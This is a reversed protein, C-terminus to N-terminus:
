CGGRMDAGCNPCFHLIEGDSRSKTYGCVSCITKMDSTTTTLPIRLYKWRGRKVERGKLIVLALTLYNGACEAGEILRYDKEKQKLIDYTYQPMEVIIQITKMEAM